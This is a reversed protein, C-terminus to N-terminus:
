GPAAWGKVRMCNRHLEGREMGRAMAGGLGGGTKGAFALDIEYWCAAKDRDLDGASAGAKVWQPGQTTMCGTLLAALAASIAAPASM